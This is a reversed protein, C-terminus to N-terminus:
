CSHRGKSRARWNWNLAEKRGGTMVGGRYRGGQRSYGIAAIRNAGLIRILQTIPRLPLLGQQPALGRIKMWGHGGDNM